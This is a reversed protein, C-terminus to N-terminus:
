TTTSSPLFPKRVNNVASCMVDAIPALLSRHGHIYSSGGTFKFTWFFNLLFEQRGLCCFIELGSDLSHTTQLEGLQWQGHGVTPQPRLPTAVAAVESDRALSPSPCESAPQERELTGGNDVSWIVDPSESGLKMTCTLVAPCIVQFLM